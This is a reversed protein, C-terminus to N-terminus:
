KVKDKLRIAKFTAILNRRIQDNNNNLKLFFM